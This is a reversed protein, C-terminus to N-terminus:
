SAFRTRIRNYFSHFSPHGPWTVDGHVWDHMIWPDYGTDTEVVHFMASQPVDTMGKTQAWSELASMRQNISRFATDLLTSADSFADVARQLALFGQPTDVEDLVSMDGVALHRTLLFAVFIYMNHGIKCM